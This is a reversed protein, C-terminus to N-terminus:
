KLVCTGCPGLSKQQVEEWTIEHSNKGACNAEYHYKKSYEGGTYIHGHYNQDGPVTLPEGETAGCVACRKPATYTADEWRHGNATGETAGCSCTKPETCTAAQFSHTHVPQTAPETVPIATTVTPTIAATTAIEPAALGSIDASGTDPNGCACLCVGFVAILFLGFRRKVMSIM